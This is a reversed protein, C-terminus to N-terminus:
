SFPNPCHTPLAARRSYVLLSFVAGDIVTPMGIAIVPVGFTEANFASRANGVGSGPVIGANTVQITRTLHALTGAALADVVLIAAPQVTKCLGHM